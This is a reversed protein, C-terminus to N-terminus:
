ITIGWKNALYTEVTGRDGDSLKSDYILIECLYGELFNGAAADDDGSGVVFNPDNSGAADSVAGDTGSTRTVSAGDLWMSFITHVDGSGSQALTVIAAQNATTPTSSVWTRSNTRTAVEATIACGGGTTNHARLNAFTGDTFNGTANTQGVIFVTKATLNSFWQGGALWDVTSGMGFELADLSNIQAARRAPQNAATSQVVDLGYGSKDTWTKVAEDDAAAADTADLVTSNDSADLWLLLGDVAVPSTPNVGSPYTYLFSVEAPTLAKDYIRVEDILGDFVSAAGAQWGNINLDAHTAPYTGSFATQSSQEVGDVYLKVSTGNKVGCLHVFSGTASVDDSISLGNSGAGGDNYVSMQWKDSINRSLLFQWADRTGGIFKSVVALTTGTSLSDLQVWASISFDAHTTGTGGLFDLDTSANSLYESNAATFDAANGVKGVGSPTTVTDTLDYGNGSFDVRTVASTGDSYEQMPWYALLNATGPDTASAAFRYPNIIMIDSYIAFKGPM